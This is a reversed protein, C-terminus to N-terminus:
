QNDDLARGTGALGGGQGDGAGRQGFLAPAQNDHCGRQFGRLRGRGLYPCPGPRRRPQDM